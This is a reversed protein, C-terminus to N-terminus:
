PLWAPWTGAVPLLLEVGTGLNLIGFPQPVGPQTLHHRSYLLLTGDPSWHPAGHHILPDAKLMQLAEGQTDM